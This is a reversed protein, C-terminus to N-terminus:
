IEQGRVAPPAFTRMRRDDFVGEWRAVVVTAICNGMVNVATRGMDMLQDIGLLIAAGELPLGFQTLTATLVVLAARPVGAVGKSTLMLTLMMLLQQGITLTVGGIQAVFLSALSLYLTTGDLNFSYGTPLVFSVINKPVGFREMVELSKPLAAESSATTFAILMPERIASVFTGFPVRAVVSAGGIVLVVFVIYGLYMVAVLKGLTILVALGHGGITAAIAAFVGIPAFRMVHGTVRFMVQAVSDLVDLMPKARPGVAAAAVGFFTAFVVMQLIDGKAMADVISTPFLHLFIDWAHQQNQSLATVTSTDGGTPLTLGSGPRFVNVLGLGLFLALTTAIEFYVIAKLGVRGMTKLDGTGAIGVVLTSFLLPAIIMKILRLFADALPRVSVGVSPWVYGVIVGVFLGIFIQTTVGPLRSAAAEARPPGGSASDLSM